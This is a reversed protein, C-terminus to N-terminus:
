SRLKRLEARYSKSMSLVKGCRLHVSGHGSRQTSMREIEQLNVIHSRHIRMFQEGSLLEEVQKMTARMLYVQGGAAVEVYNGAASVYQVREVQLVCEDAGKSVLLTRAPALRDSGEEAASSQQLPENRRRLFVHWALCVVLFVAAYRPLFIATTSAFDRTDTVADVALPVLLSAPVVIGGVRACFRWAGPGDKRASLVRFVIPTSILWVGWERLALLVTGAVDPTIQRVVAQHVLCYACVGSFYLAWAILAARVDATWLQIRIPSAYASHSSM